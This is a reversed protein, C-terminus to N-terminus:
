SGPNYKRKEMRLVVISNVLQHKKFARVTLEVDEPNDEVLLSNVSTKLM